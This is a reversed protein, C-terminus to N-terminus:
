GAHTLAREPATKREVVKTEVPQRSWEGWPAAPRKTALKLQETLSMRGALKGKAKEDGVFFRFPAVAERGEQDRAIVMMKLERQNEPLNAPPNVTFTGSQPNFVVWKPLDSGDQLKATLTVSADAKTHAFTDYPLAFTTIGAPEAFQDSVANALTLNPPLSTNGPEAVVVPFGSDSTLIAEVPFTSITLQPTPSTIQMVTASNFPPLPALPVEAAPTAPAPAPAPAPAAPPPTQGVPRDDDKIASINETVDPNYILGTGNDHITATGVVMTNGTNYAILQFTETGEYNLDNVVAVRVQLAGGTPVSIYSNPTYNQWQTGDFYELGGGTDAGVEASGGSGSAGGTNGTAQMALKVEQGAMGTVTFFAYPSAENVSSDTISLLRDDDLTGSVTAGTTNDPYINGTGDDRITATGTQSRPVSSTYTATLKLDEASEFTEDQNVALRVQLSTSGTGSGPVTFGPTYATWTSGNWYQLSTDYDTGAAASPNVTGDSLSLNLTEGINATVTFVAYPSAENVTISNVNLVRDDNTGSGSGGHSSDGLGDDRITGIGQNDAITANTPSSLTVKFTEAREYVMDNTIAVTVTKSTDGAAFNLTGSTSTYDTGNTATDDSAAYAVSSTLATSGTKTVTFTMTGAAENVTVDDISFSPRDDNLTSGNPATNSGTGGTGDFWQGTGDDYITGTGVATTGIADTVNLTFTQPGEYFTDNIVASRVLMAGSGNLAVAGSSYVSWTAGNDTSYQITPGYDESGDFMPVGNTDMAATGNVLALSVQQNAAGSVTFVAYPSSESVSVNNVGFISLNVTASSTGGNDDTIMYSFSDTGTYGANPTYSYNGTNSTIRVTGHLTAINANLQYPLFNYPNNLPDSNIMTVSLTDSDPAGDHDNSLMNGTVTSGTAMSKADDVAVPNVNTVTWTFSRTTSNATPNGTTPDLETVVIDATYNYTGTTSANAAITGTILGTVPDIGLGSPLRTASYEFDTYTIDAFKNSVDFEIVQGDTSTQNDIAIPDVYDVTLTVTATSTGGQGDSITYTFTDTVPYGFTPPSTLSSPDYLYSGDSNVLLRARSPLTITDGVNVSAGNVATVTLTQSTNPDYDVGAGDNDTIINGTAQKDMGIFQSNARATPPTNVVIADSSSDTSDNPDTYNATLATGSPLAAFYAAAQAATQGAPTSVFVAEDGLDAEFIGPTTTETLTVTYSSTGDSVTATVSGHGSEDLDTVRLYTRAGSNYVAGAEVGGSTALATRFMTTSPTGLDTVAVYMSTNTTDIVTGESGEHAVVGINYSGDQITTQWAYEYTKYARSDNAANVVHANAMNITTPTGSPSTITLDLSSIDYDGFPDAVKFRIYVIDGANVSGSTIATGGNSFSNNFFAVEQVGATGLDADALTIVTTTPLEIRSPTGTSDYAIKFSGNTSSANTIKLGVSQGAHITKASGLANFSWTLTHATSDYVPTNATYTSGDATLTATIGSTNSLSSENSVYTVVKIVGGAPIIFDTAMTLGQTFTVSTMGTEHGNVAFRLDGSATAGSSSLRSGGSYIDTTGGQWVIGSNSSDVRIVYSGSKDLTLGTPSLIVDKYGTSLQATSVTGSWLIAGDWANRISVTATASTTGTKKLSLTIADVAIADSASSSAGFSFTQGAPATSGLAFDTTGSTNATSVLGTAIKVNDIYVRDGGDGSDNAFNTVFKLGTANAALTFTKTTYTTSVSTGYIKGVESWSGGLQQQVSIYDGDELARTSSSDKIDFTLTASSSLSTFNRSIDAGSARLYLAYDSNTASVRINGSGTGDSESNETWGSSWGSGSTYSASTTGFNDTISIVSGSSTVLQGTTAVTNDNPQVRDLNNTSDDSLYLIKIQSPVAISAYATNANGIASDSNGSVGPNTPNDFVVGYLPDTYDARLTDGAGFLMTGNNNGAGSSASTALMARFVNTNLGTETLTVEETEGTVTNTVTVSLTDAVTTSTNADNDRVELGVLAEEQFTSTSGAFASDKIFVQGDYTGNINIVTQNTTSRTVGTNSGAPNGDMQADNTVVFGAAALAAIDSSVQVRYKIIVQDGRKLGQTGAVTPDADTLTYGTLDLPSGSADDAIAATDLAVTGDARIIKITTSGAVYSAANASAASIADKININFLDIVARNTLTLTYEIQEGLEVSSDGDSAGTYTVPSAEVSTKGFVYDPFPLVTTGMDLYPTGAGAISPDEGWAATILTGDDTYVTLGSQNKDATDFIRYSQLAVVDFAYAGTSSGVVATGMVSAGAADKVQMSAGNDIYITTDDTATVWVPSGNLSTGTPVGDYGPAWGVVFKTTLYSEPVLSYSWDHTANSTADADIVGVAFFKSGDKTYFHAASAPMLVYNTGTTSGTNAAVTIKTGSTTATDYYVDIATANPNYLVVYSPDATLTTSVPAYYSSSWQETPTLAFWRNEYASGVDGAVSYVGIGKNATIHAGAMVGGNVFYTEGQNLAINTLEFTGDGNTDINVTTGDQTAIIHLSTYEFLKNTGTAVTEVDQGIPVVYDTGANGTDIVSVAGALVTGPTASWGARVVSVAQTSGIKDRGDYDVTLPSAPNVQNQLVITQGAQILDNTTGPTVGNNLDGDGWIQTTSQIPNSIDAEYGDEWQDYVIVTNNSTATIAIVTNENGSVNSSIAKQATQLNGEPLPVFHVQAIGYPSAAEVAVQKGDISLTLHDSGADSATPDAFDNLLVSAFAHGEDGATDSGSNLKSDFAHGLEEILVAQIAVASASNAYESSLYIVPTGNPGNYAFAGLAGQLEANSRLEVRVSVTGNHVGAVLNNAAEQWTASPTTQGGNFLTFMQEAADPRQLFAAVMAEAQQQAANLAATTNEDGASFHLLGGDSDHQTLTNVADTAAAGDFMFRQELVMPSPGKRVLKSALRAGAGANLAATKLTTKNSKM